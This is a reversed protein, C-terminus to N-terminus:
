RHHGSSRGLYHSLISYISMNRLQREIEERMVQDIDRTKDLKEKEGPLLALREQEARTEERADLSGEELTGGELSRRPISDPDVNSGFLVGFRCATLAVMTFRLDMNGEHPM